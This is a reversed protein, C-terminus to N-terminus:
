VKDVVASHLHEPRGPYDDVSGEVGAFGTSSLLDSWLGKNFFPGGSTSRYSDESLWWGELLAFPLVHPQPTEVVGEVLILKGHPKLVARVHKLTEVMDPTAHLVNSALVVDYSEAAFGQSLPDQSIDLKGYSLQGSWQSLKTRANDFFSASIDTFTYQYSSLLGETARHIGELVPLTASATGGGIELIRLDPNCAALLAIYNAAAQNLRSTSYQEYTHQFLGDELMISMPLQEGRIIQPLQAGVACVMKGTDSSSTVKDLLAAADTTAHQSAKIARRAWALFKAYHVPVNSTDDDTIEQFMRSLFHVAARDLDHRKRLEDQTAANGQVMESLARTDMLNTYPVHKFTYSEPLQLGITNGREVGQLRLPGIEAVPKPPLSDTSVEFLVLRVHAESKEPRGVLTSVVKFERGVDAAIRNSIRFQLCFSPVMTPGPRDSGLMPGFGHCISDLLPPDVTVPSAEPHAHSDPDLRGLVLTSVTAASDQADLEEPTKRNLIQLASQVHPSETLSEHSHDAEVLGYAHQTWQHSNSWATSSVTASGTPAPRLKTTLDVREDEEIVLSAKVHFEKILVAPAVDTTLSRLAEIALSVFGTFPFLVNGNIFHDRIWPLDDLTFVNRFVHENGESYPSRSGLLRKYPGGQHLWNTAMRSQLIYRDAKNWAYAPLDDIIQVGSSTTENVAGLNIDLGGEFLSAALKLLSTRAAMTRMLTPVYKVHEAQNQGGSAIRELTQKTASQLAPHPGIEIMIDPGQGNGDINGRSSYLTEVAQLYQVPQVLNKVWYSALTPDASEGTGTVSSIFRPTTLQFRGQQEAQQHVHQITDVDGSITVSNPSNVAAVVAYGKSAQLLMRAEQASTGVALMAGDVDQGALIEQAAIGRFYAIAIAAEFSVLGATFAAAIEGSSHGLVAAPFIGWSKLLIVLALQIATCAPQSIEPDTIRSELKDRNLEESLSWTAGLTVLLQEAAQIAGAFKEYKQLGAGMRFTQAGQGTFIFAVVPDKTKGPRTCKAMSQLRDKLLRTSEAVLAVRHAFHTRRQGLTYALNKAFGASTPKGALYDAFSSQYAELSNRSQASFVYLHEAVSNNAHGSPTMMKSFGYYVDNGNVAGEIGNTRIGNGNTMARHEESLERSGQELLIAANSGGFGFNTVCVRKRAGSPWPMSKPLVKLRGHGEIEPNIELFDANPLMTGRELMMICKIISILGSAGELHGFNSKVAGIYVPNSPSRHCGVVSAIAGADIPDGIPTGTGHAEVFSTENPDMGVDRHLNFLLEEQGLQDLGVWGFPGILLKSGGVFATSCDGALISQCALHIAYTSSSCAADVAVSPGTLGFFHSLRNAFMSQSSGFAAYKSSNMLDKAIAIAHDPDTGSAFVGTNSGLLDSLPIGASETAEFTCELLCRQQPDMFKAEEASIKFFSPDFAYPDDPLFHGGKSSIFGAKEANPHYYADHNFRNSPVPSWAVKGQELFEWLDKRGVDPARYAYGVIALPQRQSM